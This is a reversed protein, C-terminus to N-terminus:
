YHFGEIGHNKGWLYRTPFWGAAGIERVQENQATERCIVCGASWGRGADDGYIRVLDGKRLPIVGIEAEESALPSFRFRVERVDGRKIMQSVPDDRLLTLATLDIEHDRGWLYSTPFWGRESIEEVRMETAAKRCLVCGASWGNDVHEFIRVLDGRVIPIGTAEEAGPYWNRHVERLNGRKIMQSVPNQRLLTLTVVPGAEEGICTLLTQADDLLGHQWLLDFGFELTEDLDEL